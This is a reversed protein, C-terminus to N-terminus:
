YFDFFISFTPHIPKIWLIEPKKQRIEQKAEKEIKAINKKTYANERSAVDLIIITGDQKEYFTVFFARIDNSAKFRSVTSNTLKEIQKTCILQNYNNAFYNLKDFIFDSQKKDFNKNIKEIVKSAFELQM